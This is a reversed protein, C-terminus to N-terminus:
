RGMAMELGRNPQSPTWMDSTTGQASCTNAGVEQLCPDASCWPQEPAMIQVTNLGVLRKEHGVRGQGDHPHHPPVCHQCGGCRHCRVRSIPGVMCRGWVNSLTKSLMMLRLCKHLYIPIWSIMSPMKEEWIIWQSPILTFHLFYASTIPYKEPAWENDEGQAKM